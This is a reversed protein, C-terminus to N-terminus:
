GDNSDKSRTEINQINKNVWPKASSGIIDGVFSDLDIAPSMCQDILIFYEANNNKDIVITHDPWSIHFKDQHMYIIPKKLTKHYEPMQFLEIM